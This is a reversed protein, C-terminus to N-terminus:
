AAVTSQDIGGRRVARFMLVNAEGWPGHTVDFGPLEEELGRFEPPAARAHLEGVIVRARRISPHSLLAYEDGEIDVKLVDVDAWGLEGLLDELGLRRVDHGRSAPRDSSRETSPARLDLVISGPEGAALPMLTVNPLRGVNRELRRYTDPAPELAVVQAAPYRTAFLLTAFGANAGLDLVRRVQMPELPVDYDTTCLVETAGAFEHHNAVHVRHRQGEFTLGFWPLPM